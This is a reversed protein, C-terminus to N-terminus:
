PRDKRPPTDFCVPSTSRPARTADGGPMAEDLPMSDFGLLTGDAARKQPRSRHPVRREAALTPQADAAPATPKPALMADLFANFNTLM